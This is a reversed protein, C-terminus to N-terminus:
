FQKIFYGLTKSRFTNRRNLFLLFHTIMSILGNDIQNSFKHCTLAFLVDYEFVCRVLFLSFHTNKSSADNIHQYHEHVLTPSGFINKVM